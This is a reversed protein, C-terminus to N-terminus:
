LRRWVKSSGNDLLLHPEVINSGVFPGPGTCGITESATVVGQDMRETDNTQQSPRQLDPLYPARRLHRPSTHEKKESSKLHIM